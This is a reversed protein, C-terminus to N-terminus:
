LFSACCLCFGRALQCVAFWSCGCGGVCRACSECILVFTATVGVKALLVVALVAVKSVDGLASAGFLLCGSLVMLFTSTVRRGALETSALLPALLVAPLESGASLLLELVPNDTFRGGTLSFSLSYYTLSSFTAIVLLAFSHLRLRPSRFVDVTALSTTSGRGGMLGPDVPADERVISRTPSRLVDTRRSPLLAASPVSTGCSDAIRALVTRSEAARGVALLWKPSEPLRLLRGFVLLPLYAGALVVVVVRWNGVVGPHSATLLASGAACWLSLWCGLRNRYHPGIVETFLSWSAAFSGGVMGGVVVQLVAYVPYVPSLSLGWLSAVTLAVAAWYAPKRGHKDCVVVFLDSGAWWGAFFLVTASTALWEGGAEHLVPFEAAVGPALWVSSLCVATNIMWTYGVVFVVQVCVAYVCVCVGCVMCLCLPSYSHVLPKKWAIHSMYSAALCMCVALIYLLSRQGERRKEVGVHTTVRVNRVRMQLPGAEGVVDLVEDVTLTDSTPEPRERIAVLNSHRLDGGGGMRRRWQPTSRMRLESESTSRGQRVEEHEPAAFPEVDVIKSYCGRISM